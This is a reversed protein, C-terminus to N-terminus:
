EKSTPNVRDVHYFTHTLGEPVTMGLNVCDRGVNEYHLRLMDTWAVGRRDALTFGSCVRREMERPPTMHQCFGKVVTEIVLFNNCHDNLYEPERPVEITLGVM